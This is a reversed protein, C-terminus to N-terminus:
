ICWLLLSLYFFNHLKYIIKGKPLDQADGSNVQLFEDCSSLRCTPLKLSLPPNPKPYTEPQSLSDESNSFDHLESEVGCSAINRVIEAYALYGASEFVNILKQYTAQSGLREKWM